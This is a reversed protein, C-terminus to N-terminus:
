SGELLGAFWGSHFEEEWKLSSADRWGKSMSVLKTSKILQKMETRANLREM